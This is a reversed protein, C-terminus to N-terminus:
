PPAVLAGHELAYRVIDARRRLKLKQMFRARYTEVSKAGLGLKEAVEQSTLGRAVLLFVERERPSLADLGHHRDGAPPPPPASIFVRGAALARIADILETDAAHKLVYGHAGAELASRLYGPEEHMTLVLVRAAPCAALLRATATLGSVRAMGLDMIVVDPRARRATEVVEDGDGADAVVEMDPQAGCLLRLGGRLVAHDDVIMVRITM